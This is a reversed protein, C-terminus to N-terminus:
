DGLGLLRRRLQEKNWIIRRMRVAGGYPVGSDRAQTVILKSIKKGRTWKQMATMIM